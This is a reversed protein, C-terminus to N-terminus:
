AVVEACMTSGGTRSDCTKCRIAMRVGDGWFGPYLTPRKSRLYCDCSSAQRRCATFALNAVEWNGMHLSVGIKPVSNENIARCCSGILFKSAPRSRCASLTPPRPSSAVSTIYHDPQCVRKVTALQTM